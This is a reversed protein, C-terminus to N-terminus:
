ICTHKGSELKTAKEKRRNRRRRDKEIRDERM